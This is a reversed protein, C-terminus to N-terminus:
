QGCLTHCVSVSCCDIKYKKGFCVKTGRLIETLKLVRNVVRLAVDDILMVFFALIYEDSFHVTIGFDIELSCDWLWISNKIWVVLVMKRFFFKCKGFSLFLTFVTMYEMEKLWWSCAIHGCEVLSALQSKCATSTTMILSSCWSESSWLISSSRLSRLTTM